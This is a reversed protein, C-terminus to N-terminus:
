PSPSSPKAGTTGRPPSGPSGGGASLLRSLAWGRPYRPSGPRPLVGVGPPSPDSGGLGPPSLRSSGGRQEEASPHRPHGGPSLKPSGRPPSKQPAACPFVGLGGRPLAPLIGPAGPSPHGSRRPPEPLLGPAPRQGLMGRVAGPSGAPGPPSRGDASRRRSGEPSPSVCVCVLVGGLEVADGKGGGTKGWVVALISSKSSPIMTSWTM